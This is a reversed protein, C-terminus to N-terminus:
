NFIFHCVTLYNKVVSKRVMLKQCVPCKHSSINNTKDVIVTHHDNITQKGSRVTSTKEGVLSEGDDRMVLNLERKVRNVIEDALNDFKDPLSAQDVRNSPRQSVSEFDSTTMQSIACSVTSRSSPLNLPTVDDSQDDLCGDEHYNSPDYDAISDNPMLHTASETPQKRNSLWTNFGANKPSGVDALPVQSQQKPSAHHDSSPPKEKL